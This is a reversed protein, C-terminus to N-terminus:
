LRKNREKDTTKIRSSIILDALVLVFQNVRKTVVFLFLTTSADAQHVGELIYHEARPSQVDCHTECGYQASHM